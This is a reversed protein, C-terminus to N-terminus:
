KLYLSIIIAKTKYNGLIFKYKLVNRPALIITIISIVTVVRKEVIMLM